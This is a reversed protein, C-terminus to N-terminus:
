SGARYISDGRVLNETEKITWPNRTRGTTASVHAVRQAPEAQITEVDDAEGFEQQGQYIIQEEREPEAPGREEQERSQQKVQEGSRL